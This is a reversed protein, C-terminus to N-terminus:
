EYLRIDKKVFKILIIESDKSIIKISGTNFDLTEM